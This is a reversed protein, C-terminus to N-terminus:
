ANAGPSRSSCSAEILKSMLIPSIKGQRNAPAVKTNGGPSSGTASTKAQQRFQATVTNNGGVASHCSSAASAPASGRATGAVKRRTLKPPSCTM